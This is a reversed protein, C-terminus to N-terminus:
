LASFDALTTSKTAGGATIKLIVDGDDGSGTGDSMWLVAMGEAPDTPDASQEQLYMTGHGIRSGDGSISGANMNGVVDIDGGVELDHVRSRGSETPQQPQQEEEPM